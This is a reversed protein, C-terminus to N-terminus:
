LSFSKSVGTTNKDARVPVYYQFVATYLLGTLWPGANKHSSSDQCHWFYGLCMVYVFLVTISQELVKISIINTWSSELVHLHPLHKIPYCKRLHIPVSLSLYSDCAPGKEWSLKSLVLHHSIVEKVECIEPRLYNLCCGMLLHGSSYSLMFLHIFLISSIYFFTCELM